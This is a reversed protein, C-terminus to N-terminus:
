DESDRLRTEGTSAVRWSVSSYGSREGGFIPDINSEAEIAAKSVSEAQRVRSTEAEASAQVALQLSQLQESLHSLLWAILGLLAVILLLLLTSMQCGSALPSAVCPFTQRRRYM